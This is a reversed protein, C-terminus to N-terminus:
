KLSTELCRSLLSSPKVQNLYYKYNNHRMKNAFGQNEFIKKCMKVCEGPTKFLLYNKEEKLSIPLEYNLPESLICRSAALYEPLSWGISNHLGATSIGILCKKVLSMYNTKDTRESTLCDPYNEKAFPRPTLGGIFREGFENRLVRILNARTDNIQRLRNPSIKRTVTPDWVHTQFLIKPEAPKDPTVEFQSEM